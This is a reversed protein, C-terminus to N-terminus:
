VTGENTKSLEKPVALSPLHNPLHIDGHTLVFGIYPSRHVAERGVSLERSGRM